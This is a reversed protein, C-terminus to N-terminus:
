IETSISPDPAVATCNYVEIRWRGFRQGLVCWGCNAVGGLGTSTDYSWGLMNAMGMRIAGGHSVVVVTQGDHSEAIERLAAGARLGVQGMTEGTPSRKYDEGALVAARVAPDDAMLSALSSGVWTGVDIEALRADVIVQHGTLGALADATQEARRMPSCYIASPRMAALYPAALGAQALGRQNLPIDTQGQFVGLENWDTVGHRWMVLRTM